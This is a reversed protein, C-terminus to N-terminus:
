SMCTFLSFVHSASLLPVNNELPLVIAAVSGRGSEQVAGDTFAIVSQYQHQNLFAEVQERPSQQVAMNDKMIDLTHVGSRRLIDAAKMKPEEEIVVSEMTSQLNKLQYFLFGKPTSFVQNAIVERMM